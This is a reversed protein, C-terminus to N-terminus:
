QLKRVGQRRLVAVALHGMRLCGGAVHVCHRAFGVVTEVARRNRVVRKGNSVRLQLGALADTCLGGHRCLATGSRHRLRTLSKAGNSGGKHLTGGPRIGSPGRNLLIANVVALVRGLQYLEDPNTLGTLAKIKRCTFHPLTWQGELGVGKATLASHPPRNRIRAKMVSRLVM